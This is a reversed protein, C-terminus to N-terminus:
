ETLTISIAGGLEGERGGEKPFGTVDVEGAPEGHCSLCSPSYYEPILMRFRDGGDTAVLEYWPEGKLWDPDRFKEEIVAAEWADPRAKRNRVLEAPATVKVSALHGVKEGFRENVLRAFVAPIFGKFGMHPTNILDQHETVVESIAELQAETLERQLPTLDQSLPPKGNTEIYVDTLQDLFAQATLGKDALADDNILPQNSSLVARASRLVGALHHGSAVEDSLDQARAGPGPMLALGLCLLAAFRPAM